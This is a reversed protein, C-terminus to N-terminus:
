TALDFVATLAESTARRFAARAREDCGKMRKVIRASLRFDRVREGANYKRSANVDALFAATILHRTNSPRARTM